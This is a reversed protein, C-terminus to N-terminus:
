FPVDEDIDPVKFAAPKAKGDTGQWEGVKQTQKAGRHAGKLNFFMDVDNKNEGTDTRKRISINAICEKDTIDSAIESASNYAKSEIGCAFLLDAIKRRGIAVAEASRNDWTFYLWVKRNEYANSEGAKHPVVQLTVKLGVTDKDKMHQSSEAVLVRYAGKPLPEFGVSESEENPNWAM